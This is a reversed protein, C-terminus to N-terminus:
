TVCLKEALVNVESRAHACTRAGLHVHLDHVGGMVRVRSMRKQGPTHM